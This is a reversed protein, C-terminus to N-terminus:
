AVTSSAAGVASRLAIMICGWKGLRGCNATAPMPKVCFKETPGSISSGVANRSQDSSRNSAGECGTSQM